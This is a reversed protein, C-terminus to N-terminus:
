MGPKSYLWDPTQRHPRFMSQNSTFPMPATAPMKVPLTGALIWSAPEPPTVAERILCLRIAPSIILKVQPKLFVEQGEPDATLLTTEILSNAIVCTDGSIEFVPRQNETERITLQIDLVRFGMSVWRGAIKRWEQVKIAITYEGVSGPADWILDGTVADITFTPPGSGAENAISYNLGDYFQIDNPLSYGTVNADISQKPTVLEYSLSDGDLDYAGPNYFYAKGSSGIDIPPFSFVPQQNSGLFPDIVM